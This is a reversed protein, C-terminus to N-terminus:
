AGTKADFTALVEAAAATPSARGEAV